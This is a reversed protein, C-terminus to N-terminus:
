KFITYIFLPLILILNVAIIRISVKLFRYRVHHTSMLTYYECLLANNLEELSIASFDMIFNDINKGYKEITDQQYVFIRPRHGGTIRKSTAFLNVMSRIAYFISVFSVTICLLALIEPFINSAITHQEKLIFTVVAVMISNVSIVVGARSATSKRLDDYRAIAWKLFGLKQDTSTYVDKREM